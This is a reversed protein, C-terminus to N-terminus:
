SDHGKAFPLAVREIIELDYNGIGKFTVGSNSLIRMKQVGLDRLIQAGLGYGTNPDMSGLTKLQEGEKWIDTPYDRYSFPSDGHPEPSHRLFLVVGTGEESIRKMAVNLRSGEEQGLRMLINQVSWEAHVRVLPVDKQFRDQGLTLALYIDNVHGHRPRYVHLDFDGYLTPMKVQELKEIAPETKLRYNVLDRITYVKMNLAKGLEMLEPLLMAEGQDNLVECIVAQPSLGALVSLDVSAETHGPRALVGGERAELPFIHGPRVLDSPKAQSGCAALVTRCRDAASIGTTIGEAADISITFATQLHAENHFVQQPLQLKSTWESTMPQCILGRGYSMMQNILEPTCKEAAFVFDGENERDDDDVLIIMRGQRIDEIAEEIPSTM